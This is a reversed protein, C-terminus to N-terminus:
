TVGRYLACPSAHVALGGKVLGGWIGLDLCITYLMINPDWPIWCMNDVHKSGSTWVYRMDCSKQIGLISECDQSPRGILLIVVVVVVVVVVVLIINILGPFAARDPGLLRRWAESEGSADFRRPPYM